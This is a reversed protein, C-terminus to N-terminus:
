IRGVRVFLEWTLVRQQDPDGWAEAFAETVLDLPSHGHAKRYRNVASWSDLYDLYQTLTWHQQMPPLEGLDIRQFPFALDAYRRDIHVREAPWYPATIDEYLRTYVADIAANVSLRGYGIEAIVGGPKLVRQVQAHFAAVDCWHLAQAITVLDVSGDPLACSEARGVAYDIRAHPQANDIQESSPDTAHVRQFLGALAVSAQGNGCGADWCLTRAPAQAAIADFLASPYTPRAQAYLAAHGSFHDKFGSM